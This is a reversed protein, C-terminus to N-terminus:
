LLEQCTRGLELHTHTSYVQTTHLQVQTKYIIKTTSNKMLRQRWRHLQFSPQLNKPTLIAKLKNKSKEKVCVSTFELHQEEEQKLLSAAEKIQPSQSIEQKVSPEPSLTSVQVGQTTTTTHLQADLLADLLQQKRQNEEKSRCLEEEYEVITRGVLAFIEEAAATLRESVLARVINM